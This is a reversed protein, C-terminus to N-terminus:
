AARKQSSDLGMKKALDKATIMPIGENEHPLQRCTKKLYVQTHPGEVPLGEQFWEATGGEYVYVNKFGQSRLKRAAYESSSCQYNSCYLVIPKNKDISAMQEEIMEFPINISGKIHCDDYLEKDLVNIVLIDDKKENSHWCGPLTVILIGFIFVLDYRM